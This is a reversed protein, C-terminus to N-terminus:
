SCCRYPTSTPPGILRSLAHNQPDALLWFTFDADEPEELPRAPPISRIPSRLSSMVSILLWLALSCVLPARRM